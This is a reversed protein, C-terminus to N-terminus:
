AHYPKPFTNPLLCLDGTLENKEFIRVGPGNFCSLSSHMTTYQWPKWVWGEWSGRPRELHKKFSPQRPSTKQKMIERKETEDEERNKLCLDWDQGGEELIDCHISGSVDRGKSKQGANVSALSFCESITHFILVARSNEETETISHKASELLWDCKPVQSQKLLPLDSQECCHHSHPEDKLLAQNSLWLRKKM